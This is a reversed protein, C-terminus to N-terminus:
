VRVSRAATGDVLGTSQRHPRLLIHDISAVTELSHHGLKEIIKDKLQQRCPFIKKLCCLFDSHRRKKRYEPMREPMKLMEMNVPDYDWLLSSHHLWRKKRIYQANGGFKRNGLVYDNECLRFNQGPLIAYYFDAIWNMIARPHSPIKAFDENCIFTVFVTDPDVFVTGGGSFRKILPISREELRDLDVLRELNGSIGLVIAEPSGDNIICWNRDDARLLAEEIRLQTLIPTNNLVLVHFM